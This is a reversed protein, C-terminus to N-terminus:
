WWKKWEIMGVPEGDQLYWFVIERYRDLGLKWLTWDFEEQIAIAPLTPRYDAKWSICADEMLYTRICTAIFLGFITSCPFHLRRITMRSSELRTCPGVWMEKWLQLGSPQRVWRVPDLVKQYKLGGNPEIETEKLWDWIDWWNVFSEGCGYTWKGMWTEVLGFIVMCIKLNVRNREIMVATAAWSQTHQRWRSTTGLNAMNFGRSLISQQIGWSPQVGQSPHQPKSTLLIITMAHIIASVQLTRVFSFHQAKCWFPFIPLPCDFSTLRIPLSHLRFVSVLPPTWGEFGSKFLFSRTIKGTIKGNKTVLFRM